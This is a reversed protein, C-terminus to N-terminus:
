ILGGAMSGINSLGSTFQQFKDLWDKKNADIGMQTTSINNAGSFMQGALGYANSSSGSADKVGSFLGAGPNNVSPKGTAVQFVDVGSKSQPLFQTSAAIANTLAGQAQTKREAGAQGYRMANSVVDLNSPAGATGRAYGERSLGKGIEDRETSSLAGSLDIGNMLDKLRSSTLERTAYYEPDQERQLKDAARVLEGGPGQIVAKDSEAQSLANRATIENGIANLQPGYTNYLDVMLQAYPGSTLQSTQLESLATDQAAGNISRNLYPLLDNIASVDGAMTRYTKSPTLPAGPVEALPVPNAKSPDKWVYNGNADVYPKWSPKDGGFIGFPDIPNFGISESLGFPDGTLINGMTNSGGGSYGGTRPLTTTSTYNPLYQNQAGPTIYPSLNQPM